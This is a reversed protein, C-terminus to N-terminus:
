DLGECGAMVRNRVPLRLGLHQLLEAVRPAPRAVTRVRMEIRDEGRRVPVVVDM